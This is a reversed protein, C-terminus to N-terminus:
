ECHPLYLGPDVTIASKEEATTRIKALADFHDYTAQAYQYLQTGFPWSSTGFEDLTNPDIQDQRAFFPTTIHNARLHARDGCRWFDSPHMATCSEDLRGRYAITVSQVAARNKPEYTPYSENSPENAADLVARFVLRGTSNARSLYA